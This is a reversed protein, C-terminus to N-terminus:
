RYRSAQNTSYGKRYDRDRRHDENRRHYDRSSMTEPRRRNKERYSENQDRTAKERTTNLDGRRFIGNLLCHKAYKLCSHLNKLQLNFDLVLYKKGLIMLITLPVLKKLTKREEKTKNM